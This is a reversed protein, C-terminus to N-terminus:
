GTFSPTATECGGVCHNQVETWTLRYKEASGTVERLLAAETRQLHCVVTFCTRALSYRTLFGEGGGQTEEQAQPGYKLSTQM